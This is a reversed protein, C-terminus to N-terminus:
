SRRKIERPAMGGDERKCRCFIQESTGPSRCLRSVASGHEVHQFALAIQQDPYRSKRM